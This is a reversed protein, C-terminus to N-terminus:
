GAAGALEEHNTIGPAHVISRRPYTKLQHFVCTSPDPLPYAIQDVKRTCDHFLTSKACRNGIAYATANSTFLQVPIM